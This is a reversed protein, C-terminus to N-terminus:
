KKRRQHIFPVAWAIGGIILAEGAITIGGFMAIDWWFGEPFLMILYDKSPDLMWPSASPDGFFLYHFGIFLQQFGFFSAIGAVAMIILTLACGRRIGKVLDQWRGKRWLLFLLVYITVYALSIRQILYDLQFLDKVDQLHVLEYDHFLEFEKGYKNVVKIQPTEVRSNFYDGLRRAVQSLQARDIKTVESVGYKDFGYQYIHINTAGL